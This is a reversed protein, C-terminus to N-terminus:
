RRQWIRGRVGARIFLDEKVCDGGPRSICKVASARRTLGWSGAWMRGRMGIWGWGVYIRLRAEAYEARSRERDLDEMRMVLAGGVERARRWATAFTRAHGIHLYGTPSPALRGRYGVGPLPSVGGVARGTYSRGMPLDSGGSNRPWIRRMGQSNEGQVEVLSRM